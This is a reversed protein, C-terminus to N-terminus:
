RKFAELIITHGFLRGMTLNNSFKMKKIRPFKLIFGIYNWSLKASRLMHELLEISFVTHHKCQKLMRYIGSQPSKGTLFISLRQHLNMDNPITILIKGGRKVVRQMEELLNIPDFVHEVVDGAWVVDYQDNEFPIGGEDVDHVIANIGNEKARGVAVSSMDMGCVEFGKKELEKAIVGMGCGIDLLKKGAPEPLASFMIEEEMSIPNVFGKSYRSNERDQPRM